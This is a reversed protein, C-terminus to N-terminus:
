PSTRRRRGPPRRQHDHGRPPRRPRRRDAARGHRRQHRGTGTPNTGTSGNTSRPRHGDLTPTAGNATPGHGDPGPTTAAPSPRLGTARRTASRPGQEASPPCPRTSRPCRRRSRRTGGGAGTRRPGRRAASSDAGPPPRRPPTPPEDAPDAGARRGTRRSPASAAATPYLPAFLSPPVSVLATTGSGPTVSLGVKIGHRAALRAVVHFGLRQSVGLDVDPPAALLANAEEIKDAPMGLGWDEITILRGGPRARDPRSRVTVTTDPPSFRVANETLEALLHTLDTVTHGVVASQEDVVFVVRELNETEAIAARLVDRLPVPEGWTRPPQEGALVLLNEANRRVRTAIHDLAFLDALADPDRETEELQNILELQRHLLGQNRRALNTLLDSTFRRRNDRVRRAQPGTRGEGAAHGRHDAPRPGSGRVRGARGRRPDAVVAM